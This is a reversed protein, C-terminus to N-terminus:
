KSAGSILLQKYKRNQREAVLTRECENLLLMWDKRSYAYENERKRFAWNAGYFGKFPNVEEKLVLQKKLDKIEQNQKELTELIKQLDTNSARHNIAIGNNFYNNLVNFCEKKYEILKQKVEPKVKNPNISFLWGDLKSLPITFVEQLGGRTQVKILKSEYSEDSKLKEFQPKFAIGLNECIDKVVISQTEEIVELQHNNFDVTVLNM